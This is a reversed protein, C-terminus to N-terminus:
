AAVGYLRGRRRRSAADIQCGHEGGLIRLALDRFTRLAADAAMEGLGAQLGALRQGREVEGGRGDTRL